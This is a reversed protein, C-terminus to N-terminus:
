RFQPYILIGVIGIGMCLGWAIYFRKLHQRGRPNLGEGTFKIIAWSPTGIERNNAMVFCCYAGYAWCGIFALVGLTEVLNNEVM